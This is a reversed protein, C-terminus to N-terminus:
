FGGPLNYALFAGMISVIVCSAAGLLLIATIIRNFFRYSDFKVQQIEM